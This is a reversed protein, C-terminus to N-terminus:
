SRSLLGHDDNGAGAADRRGAVFGFGRDREAPRLVDPGVHQGSAATTAVGTAVPDNECLSLALLAFSGARIVTGERTAKAHRRQTNGRRRVAARRFDARWALGSFEMRRFLFGAPAFRPRTRKLAPQIVEAQNGQLRCAQPGQSRDSRSRWRKRCPRRTRPRRTSTAPVPRRSSSEIKERMIPNRILRETKESKAAPAQDALVEDIGKKDITRLGANSVRLRM